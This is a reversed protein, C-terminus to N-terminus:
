LAFSSLEIFDLMSHGSIHGMAAVWELMTFLFFKKLDQTTKESEEFNRSNRERWLNWM